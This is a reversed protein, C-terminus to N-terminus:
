RDPDFAQVPFDASVSYTEDEIEVVADSDLQRAFATILQTGLGSSLTDVQNTERSDPDPDISNKVSLRISDGDEQGTTTLSVTLWRNDSSDPGLYKLANTVAEVTLLAFPLAQDPYLIVPALEMTVQPRKSQGGPSLQILPGIVDRLLEDARVRGLEAAQYLRQHVTSMGSVRRNVSALANSIEMDDTRRIQLNIISSILQLNNKVRHHVEKLLVDKDHLADMLGAEDRILTEAVAMFEAEIAELEHPLTGEPAPKPLERTRGFRRMQAGLISVPRVLQRHVAWYVLGLSLVWMLLPFLAASIAAARVVTTDRRPWVAMAFAAGSLIPVGALVQNGTEAIRISRTGILGSQSEFEAILAARVEQPPLPVTEPEDDTRRSVGPNIVGGVANVVFLHVPGAASEDAGPAVSDDEDRKLIVTVAGTLRSQAGNDTLAWVPLSVVVQPPTNTEPAGPIRRITLIGRGATAADPAARNDSACPSPPQPGIGASSELATQAEDVPVFGAYSFRGRSGTVFRSMLAACAEADSDVEPLVSALTSAAARATDLDDGETSAFEKLRIMRDRYAIEDLESQLRLTQAVAILGLPLLALTLVIGLRFSLSRRWSRGQVDIVPSGSVSAHGSGAETSNM